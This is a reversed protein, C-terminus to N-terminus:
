QWIADVHSYELMKQDKTLLRPKLKRAKKIQSIDIGESMSSFPNFGILGWDTEIRWPRAMRSEILDSLGM